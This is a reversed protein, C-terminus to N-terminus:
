MVLHETQSKKHPDATWSQAPRKGMLINGARSRRPLSNAIMSFKYRSPIRRSVNTRIERVASTFNIPLSSFACSSDSAYPFPM